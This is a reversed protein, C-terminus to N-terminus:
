GRSLYLLIIRTQINASVDDPSDNNNQFDVLVGDGYLQTYYIATQKNKKAVVVIKMQRHGTSPIDTMTERYRRAHLSIRCVNQINFLIPKDKFRPM